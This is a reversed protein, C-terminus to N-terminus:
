RIDIADTSHSQNCCDTRSSFLFLPFSFFHTIPNTSDDILRFHRNSEFSLLRSISVSAYVENACVTSIVLGISLGQIGQLFVLIFIELLSGENDLKFIVFSLVLTVFVQSLVALFCTLMHGSLIELPKVGAVFAREQYGDKRDMVILLSGIVMPLAYLSFVILASVLYHGLDTEMKGYIPKEVYIPLNFTIPNYGLDTSFRHMFEEFYNLVARRMYVAFIFNSNDPYLRIKSTEIDVTDVESRYVDIYRSTFSQTFNDPFLMAYYSHGKRVSDLAENPTNFLNKKLFFDDM